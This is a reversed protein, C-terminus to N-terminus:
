TMAASSSAAPRRSGGRRSAPARGTRTRGASPGPGAPSPRRGTAARRQDAQRGQEQGPDDAGQIRGQDRRGFARRRPGQGAGEDRSIRAAPRRRSPRRSSRSSSRARGRRPPPPPPRDDDGEGRPPPAEGRPGRGPRGGEPRPPQIEEPGLRGDKDADLTLLSTPAAQIEKPSLAHDHDTDMAEMIPLPPPGQGMEFPGNRGAFRPRDINSATPTGRYSAILYPFKETAHYHYGREKDEHGNCDDLDTPPKGGDGNPGYLAFGDFMLGLLPSHKGESEKFPTKLCVPYKHYHYRGMPDPHGCCSDFVEAFRGLVADRGEANYPNYFPVGNVAVGIPGFPTPTSKEAKKPRTPIHFRYEQKRIRNPNTANPFTGTPHTPIGDSEVILEDGNVTVKVNKDFPHDAGAKDAPTTQALSPAALGLVLAWALGAVGRQTRGPSSDIM